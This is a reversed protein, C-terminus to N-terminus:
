HSFGNMLKTGCSLCVPKGAFMLAILRSFFVMCCVVCFIHFLCMLNFHALVLSVNGSVCLLTHKKRESLYMLKIYVFSSQWNAHGQPADSATQWSSISAAPTYGRYNLAFRGLMSCYVASLCSHAKM